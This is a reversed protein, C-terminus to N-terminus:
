RAAGIAPRAPASAPRDQAPAGEELKTESLRWVLALALLALPAAISFVLRVGEVVSGQSAFVAGLVAAGVAGGLARFFTTTAMATGLRGREVGNQVIVTLVQGVMGFGLGFVGLCLAIAVQSREGVLAALGTLAVAMLALGVLPYRKYRGSRAIRRGAFNTSATVGVMMAVLLLGAGTPTAGTVAQLYLPVFVTVSFLSATTLFFAASSIAVTPLRLLDLAVVPDAARRERWGLAAAAAVLAVVLGLIQPSDWAFRSGGWICVLM